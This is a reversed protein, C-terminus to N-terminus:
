ESRSLFIFVLTFIGILSYLVYEVTVNSMSLRAILNLERGLFSGLAILGWSIGGLVVFLFSINFLTKKM